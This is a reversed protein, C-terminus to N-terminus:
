RAALRDGRFEDRELMRLAQRALVRSDQWDGSATELEVRNKSKIAAEFCERAAQDNGSRAYAVGLNILQAPDDQAIANGTEIQAIAEANRGEVLSDYAVNESGAQAPGSQMVMALAMMTTNLM